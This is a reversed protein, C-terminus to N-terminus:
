APLPTGKTERAWFTAAVAVLYACAFLMASQAFGGLTQVIVGVFLVAVATSLRGANLCFGVATARIRTPFLEPLYVYMIAQALGIFFGLLASEAYIISSFRENTLFLLASALFCGSFSLAITPVRGIRDALWGAISCGVVAALGQWMTALARQSSGDPPVFFTQIWAPIWSLSAWYGILLAGFATAGVAVNRRHERSFLEALLRYDEGRHEKSEIWRDSERLALRLFITLVAPLAGIFFVTRWFPVLKVITGAILVGAQYSTILVGIAVARSREPWVEALFTTISVLEGGIGLGTLFRCIGLQWWTQSLGAVGTFLAYLSISIIMSRVRGLRDGIMGMVIGGTMWGFLFMSGVLSGYHGVNEPSMSGTLDGIASPLVVTMLTSDMGDFMGGLWCGLFVLLHYRTIRQSTTM